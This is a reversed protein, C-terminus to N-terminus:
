SKRQNKRDRRLMYLVFGALGWAGVTVAFPDDRPGNKVAPDLLSALDLAAWVLGFVFLVPAFLFFFFTAQDDLESEQQPVFQRYLKMIRKRM